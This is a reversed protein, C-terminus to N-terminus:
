FLPISISVTDIEAQNSSAGGITGTTSASVGDDYRTCVRRSPEEFANKQQTPTRHTSPDKKIVRLTLTRIDVGVNCCSVITGPIASSNNQQIEKKDHSEQIAKKSIMAAM